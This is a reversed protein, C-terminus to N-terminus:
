RTPRLLTKKFAEVAEIDKEVHSKRARKVKTGFRKKVYKRVNFYNAEVGLEEKVWAQLEVYGQLGSNVDKLKAELRENQEDSFLRSPKGKYDYVLLSDLGEQQYTKRWRQVSSIHSGTKNAVAQCSIGEQEYQKFVIIAKIREYVLPIQGRSLEQLQSLSERIHLKKLAPMM